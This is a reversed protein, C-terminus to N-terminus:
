FGQFPAGTSDVQVYYTSAAQGAFSITTSTSKQVVTALSPRWAFGAAVTLTSSAGTTLYSGVGIVSATEGFLATYGAGPGGAAAIQGALLNNLADLLNNLANFNGNLKPIYDTDGTLFEQLTVTM